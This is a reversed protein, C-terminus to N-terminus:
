FYQKMKEANTVDVVKYLDHRRQSFTPIGQRMQTVEDMNLDAVVVNEKEDCTAIVEGWPNVM